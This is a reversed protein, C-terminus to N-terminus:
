CYFFHRTPQRHSRLPDPMKFNRDRHIFFKIFIAKVNIETNFLKRREYNGRLPLVMHPTKKKKKHVLSVCARFKRVHTDLKDNCNAFPADTHRRSTKRFAASKNLLVLLGRIIGIRFNEKIKIRKKVNARIAHFTFVLHGYICIFMQKWVGNERSRSSCFTRGSVIERGIRAIYLPAKRAPSRYTAM